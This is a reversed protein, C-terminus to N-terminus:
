VQHEIKARVEDAERQLDETSLAEAVFVVEGTAPRNKNKDVFVEGDVPEKGLSDRFSRLTFDDTLAPPHAKRGFRRWPASPRRETWKLALLGVLVLGVLLVEWGVPSSLSSVSTVESELPEASVSLAISLILSCLAGTLFWGQFFHTQTKM